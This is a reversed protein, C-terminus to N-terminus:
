LRNIDLTEVEGVGSIERVKSEIDEFGGQKDNFLINAELSKLGFAIPKIEMSHIKAKDGVIKELQKKVAEFDTDVGEPMIRLKAVVNWETM